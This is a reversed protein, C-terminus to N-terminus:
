RVVKKTVANVLLEQSKRDPRQIKPKAAAVKVHTPAPEAADEIEYSAFVQRATKTEPLVYVIGQTGTFAPRVVNEFFKVPINICGYSIRNDLVTASALRQARHEKPNTTLVRHMSTATAYDVWLVDEGRMNGGLRSVFRGAPTTKENPRIASLERDGIGPAADDGRAQGLLAAAAGRLHGQADFVFVRADKKDVIVFPLGHHDGAHNDASRVVWDAVHRAERSAREHHFDARTLRDAAAVEDAAAAPQTALSATLLYIWIGSSARAV